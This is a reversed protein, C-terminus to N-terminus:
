QATKSWSSIPPGSLTPASVNQPGLLRLLTELEGAAVARSSLVGARGITLLLCEVAPRDAADVITQVPMRFSAGAERREALQPALLM